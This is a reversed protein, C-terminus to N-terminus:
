RYWPGGGFGPARHPCAGQARVSGPTGKNTERELWMVAGLVAALLLRVGLTTEDM